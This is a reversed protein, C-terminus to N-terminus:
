PKEFTHFNWVHRSLSQANVFSNSPCLLCNHGDKVTTTVKPRTAVKLNTIFGVLNQILEANSAEDEFFPAILPACESVKKHMKRRPDKTAVNAQNVPKGKKINDFYEQRRKDLLLSELTDRIYKIKSQVMANSPQQSRLLTLDQRKEFGDLDDQTVYIPAGPDCKISMRRMQDLLKDKKGALAGFSIKMLNERVQAPHYNSEYVGSSQSLIYNRLAPTLQGDLKGATGVRLSYLRVNRRVGMVLLCRTWIELLRQYSLHILKKSNMEERWALPEYNTDKNAFQHNSPLLEQLSRFEGHFANNAFAKSLVLSLICITKCPVFTISFKLSLNWNSAEVSIWTGIECLTRNRNSGSRSSYDLNWRGDRPDSKKRPSIVKLDAARILTAWVDHLTAAQKITQVEHWEREDLCPRLTKSETIYADLFARFYSSASKDVGMCVDIWPQEIGCGFRLAFKEWQDWISDLGKKRDDTLAMSADLPEEQFKKVIDLIRDEKQFIGERAQKPKLLWELDIPGTRGGTSQPKPM